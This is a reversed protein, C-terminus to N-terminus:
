LGPFDSFAKSEDPEFVPLDEVNDPFGHPNKEQSKKATVKKHGESEEFWRLSDRIFQRFEPVQEYVTRLDATSEQIKVKVARRVNNM